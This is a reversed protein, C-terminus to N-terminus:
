NSMADVVVTTILIAATPIPSTRDIDIEYQDYMASEGQISGVTDGEADTIEYAHGIWEGVPLLTRALTYLPGRSEIAVLLSQDDADRIRWTDRFISFDNDLILLEEETQSDTLYYDGAVHVNSPSEVHFVADGDGDVFPFGDSEEHGKLVTEGAVNTIEYRVGYDRPIEEVTFETGTVEITSLGARHDNPM